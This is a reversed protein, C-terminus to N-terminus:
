TRGRSALQRTLSDWDIDGEDLNMVPTTKRIWIAEKIWRTNRNCERDIVTVGEWDLICNNRDAHDTIASKASKQETFRRTTINEVEEKHEELRTRFTRGTEGIYIYIHNCSKCPIQYVCHTKKSEVKEKPHM